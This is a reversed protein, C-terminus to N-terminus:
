SKPPQLVFLWPQAAKEAAARIQPTQKAAYQDLDPDGKGGAKAILHWKLAETPNMAIGDGVSLLWALRNQAIPSGRLAAKRLLAVARIKDRGPLGSRKGSVDEIGGNFLAIAYEIEADVNEALAAAGLLRVAEEPNKEVGKGDKYLTALAYQAEANGQQSAMKFLEAARGFDQPFQQGELYLLGLDYAAAANGLKAAAALLKAAEARDHLGGRRAIHFIALAFMANRDGRGAALGYWRAAKADDLPVGLGNSYLEGLLTM